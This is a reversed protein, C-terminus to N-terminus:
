VRYVFSHDVVFSKLNNPRNTEGHRLLFLVLLDKYIAGMEIPRCNRKVVPKVFNPDPRKSVAFCSLTDCLPAPISISSTISCCLVVFGSTSNLTRTTHKACNPSWRDRFRGMARRDLSIFVQHRYERRCGRVVAAWYERRSKSAKTDPKHLWVIGHSQPAHCPM